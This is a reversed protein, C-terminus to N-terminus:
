PPGEEAADYEIAGVDLERGQRLDGTLAGCRSCRFVLAAELTVDLDCTPCHLVVPLEVVRLRSGRLRTGETALDYCFQLAGAVVGALAGVRVEVVTVRVADAPLHREVVDVLSRAISLEHM